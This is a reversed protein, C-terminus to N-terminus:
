DIGHMRVMWHQQHSCASAFRDLVHIVLSLWQSLLLPVLSDTAAQSTPYVDGDTWTSYEAMCGQETGAFKLFKVTKHTNNCNSATNNSATHRVEPQTTHPQLTRGTDQWTSGLDVRSREILQWSPTV